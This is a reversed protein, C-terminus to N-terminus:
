PESRLVYGTGRVTHLLKKDFGADIKRRLYRIYVDVVNSGGEFDYNWVHHEIQERSLVIGKNRLMYELIAYEKASLSLVQGGRIVQHAALDMSLDDLSLVSTTQEAPGRRLLVRVRASLEDYAFPKVLYDDAGADLGAVRDEVADRATLLLVPVANGTDRMRRLLALGDLKPLMWDLIVADYPTVALYDWAQEGDECTDVSYGELALRRATVTRIDEEDEVYLLRM